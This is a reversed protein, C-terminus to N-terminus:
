AGYVVGGGGILINFRVMLTKPVKIKVVGL